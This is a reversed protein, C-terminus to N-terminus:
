DFEVNDFRCDYHYTESNMIDRWLPPMGNRLTQSCAMCRSSHFTMQKRVWLLFSKISQEPTFLDTFHWAAARIIRELQRCLSDSADNPYRRNDTIRVRVSELMYGRILADITFSPFGVTMEIFCDGKRRASLQMGDTRDASVLAASVNELLSMVETTVNADCDSYAKGFRRLDNIDYQLDTHDIAARDRRFIDDIVTAAEKARTQWRCADLADDYLENDESSYLLLGLVSEEIPIKGTPFRNLDLQILDLHSFIEAIFKDSRQVLFKHDDAIVEKVGVSVFNEVTDRLKELSDLMRNLIDVYNVFQPQTTGPHASTM